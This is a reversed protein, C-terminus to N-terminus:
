VKSRKAANAEQAAVLKRESALASLRKERAKASTLVKLSLVLQRVLVRKVNVHRM